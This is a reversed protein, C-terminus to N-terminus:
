KRGSVTISVISTGTDKYLKLEDNNLYKLIIDEPIEIEKEKHIEIDKFGIGVIIDIYYEKVIAGSVCGAYMEAAEQLNEPLSGTTVIDSICFHGGPRLVRNIERFARRKDPVLNLVCNSLVVDYIDSPLPMDEIDGKIFEINTFGTKTLNNRAKKVMEETFDLGTVKGSDGAEARAVFCDNGAGSGLDLVSDGEHINAYKTPIGCGLSLDADPNYGKLLTYDDSFITYDDADCCSNSNCCSSNNTESSLAIDGYKKNVILKLEEPNKKM